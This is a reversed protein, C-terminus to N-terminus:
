CGDLAVNSLTQTGVGFVAVEGLAVEDEVEDIQVIEFFYIVNVAVIGAVAHQNFGRPANTGCDAVGVQQNSPAAFLKEDDRATGIAALCGNEGPAHKICEPSLWKGYAGGICRLL